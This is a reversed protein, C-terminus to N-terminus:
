KTLFDLIDNENNMEIFNNPEIEFSGGFDVDWKLLVIGDPSL